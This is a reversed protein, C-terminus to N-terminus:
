RAVAVFTLVDRHMFSRFYRDASPLRDLYLKEHKLVRRKKQSAKDEIATAPMPGIDDDSEDVLDASGVEVDVVAAAHGNQDTPEEDRARKRSSAGNETM